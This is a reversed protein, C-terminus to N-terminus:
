DRYHSRLSRQHWYSLLTGIKHVLTKKVPNLSLATQGGYFIRASLIHIPLLNATLIFDLCDTYESLYRNAHAARFGYKPCIVAEISYKYQFDSHCAKM